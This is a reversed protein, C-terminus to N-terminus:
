NAADGSPRITPIIDSEEPQPDEETTHRNGQTTSAQPITYPASNIDRVVQLPIIEQPQGSHAHGSSGSSETPLDTHPRKIPPQLTSDNEEPDPEADAEPVVM